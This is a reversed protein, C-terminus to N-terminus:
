KDVYLAVIYPCTYQSKTLKLKKYSDFLYAGTWSLWQKIKTYPLAASSNAEKLLQSHCTDDDHPTTLIIMCYNTTYIYLKYGNNPV